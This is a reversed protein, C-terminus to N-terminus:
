AARRRRERAHHCRTCVPEVDFHHQAGYGMFHDYEHRREGENWVHGCDACPLDNPRPMRGNRVEINVKQRAQKRDGDRPPHPTTGPRGTLPNINPRGHWGRPRGTKRSSLCHAALGDSRSADSGFAGRPHWQKCSTCWREGSDIRSKYEDFGVGIKVAATKFAGLKRGRLKAWEIKSSEGV